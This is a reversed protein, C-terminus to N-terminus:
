LFFEEEFISSLLARCSDPVTYWCLLIVGIWAGLIVASKWKAPPSVERTQIRRYNLWLSSGGLLVIFLLIANKFLVMLAVGSGVTIIGVPILSKRGRLLAVRVIRGGDLPLVPLLNLLNLALNIVVAWELFLVLSFALAISVGYSGLKLAFSSDLFHEGINWSLGLVPGALAVVAEVEPSPFPEKSATGAGLFPIFFIGQTKLHFLKMAILHGLEHVLVVMFLAASFRFGFMLSFGVFFSGALGAMILPKIWPHKMWSPIQILPEGEKKEGERTLNEDRIKKQREHQVKMEHLLPTSKPFPVRSPIVEEIAIGEEITFGLGKEGAKEKLLDISYKQGDFFMTDFSKPLTGDRFYLVLYTNEMESKKLAIRDVKSWPIADRGIIIHDGTQDVKQVLLREALWAVPIVIVFIVSVLLLSRVMSPGGILGVFMITMLAVLIFFLIWAVMLYRVHSM